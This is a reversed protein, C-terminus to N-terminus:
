AWDVWGVGIGQAHAEEIWGLDERLRAAAADRAPDRAGARVVAWTRRWRRSRRSHLWTPRPPSLWGQSQWAGVPRPGEPGFHLERVSLFDDRFGRARWYAASRWASVSGGLAAAPTGHGLAWRVLSMHRVLWARSYLLHQARLLLYPRLDEDPPCKHTGGRPGDEGSGDDDSCTGTTSTSSFSASASTYLLERTTAGRELSLASVSGALESSRVLGSSPGSQRGGGLEVEDEVQACVRDQVCHEVAAQWQRAQWAVDHWRLRLPAYYHRWDLAAWERFLAARCPEVRLLVMAGGPRAWRPRMEFSVAVLPTPQSPPVGLEFADIFSDVADLEAGDRVSSDPDLGLGRPDPAAAEAM